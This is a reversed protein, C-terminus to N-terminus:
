QRCYLEELTLKSFKANSSSVIGLNNNKKIRMVKRSSITYINYSFIRGHDTMTTLPNLDQRFCETRLARWNKSPCQQSLSLFKILLIVTSIKKWWNIIDTNFLMADVVWTFLKEYDYDSWFFSNNHFDNYRNKWKNTQKNANHIGNLYM